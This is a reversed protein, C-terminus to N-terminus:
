GQCANKLKITEPAFIPEKGIVERAPYHAMRRRGGWGNHTM